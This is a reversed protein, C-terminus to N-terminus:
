KKNNSNFALTGCVRDFSVTGSFNEARSTPEHIGKLIFPHSSPRPWHLLSLQGQGQEASQLSPCASFLCFIDARQAVVFQSFTLQPPGCPPFLSILQYLLNKKRKYCPEKLQLNGVYDLSFGVTANCLLCFLVVFFLGSIDGTKNLKVQM